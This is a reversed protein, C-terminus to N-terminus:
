GARRREFAVDEAYRTLRPAVFSALAAVFGSVAFVISGAAMTETFCAAADSGFPDVGEPCLTEAHIMTLVMLTAPVTFVAPMWSLQSRRIMLVLSFITSAAVAGISGPPGGRTYDDPGTFWPVFGSVIQVVASVGAIVAPIWAWWPLTARAPRTRRDRIEAM